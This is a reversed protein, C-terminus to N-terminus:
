GEVASRGGGVSSGWNRWRWRAVEAEIKWRLCWEEGREMRQRTRSSECARDRETISIEREVDEAGAKGSM